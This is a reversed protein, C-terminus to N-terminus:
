ELTHIKGRITLDPQYDFERDTVIATGFVTKTLVEVTWIGSSDFENELNELALVGNGPVDQNLILELNLIRTGVTGPAKSGKYYQLYTESEPYLNDLTFSIKPFFRYPISTDFGTWAGKTLPWVQVQASAIEALVTNEDLLAHMKFTEIGAETHIDVGLLSDEYDETLEHNTTIFEQSIFRPEESAPALSGNVITTDEVHHNFLVQRATLPADPESSRLGSVEYSVTFGQDVRTRPIGKSYPDLTTITITSAPLFAGVTDTGVFHLVPAQDARDERAWITFESGGLPVPLESDMSGIADVEVRSFGGSEIHEQDLLYTWTQANVFPALVFPILFSHFSKM